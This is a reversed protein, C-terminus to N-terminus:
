RRKAIAVAGKGAAFVGAAILLWLYWAMGFIMWGQTSPQVVATTSVAPAPKTETASLVSSNTTALESGDGIFYTRGNAPATTTTSTTAPKVTLPIPDLPKPITEEEIPPLEPLVVPAVMVVSGQVPASFDGARTVSWVKLVYTGESAVETSVELVSSDVRVTESVPEEGKFLQYSFHTIDTDNEPFEESADPTLGGEPAAWSWGIIYSNKTTSATVASPSGIASKEEEAPAELEVVVPPEEARVVLPAIVSFTMSVMLVSALVAAKSLISNYNNRERM